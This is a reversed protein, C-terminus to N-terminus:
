EKVIMTGVGESTLIEQLLAHKQRGDIIHAANVGAKLADKCCEVKPIMGGAIIGDRRLIDAEDITLKRYLTDADDKDKLVGPVDTM